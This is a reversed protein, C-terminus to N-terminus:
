RQVATLLISLLFWKLSCLSIKTSLKLFYLRDCGLLCVHPLLMHGVPKVTHGVLFCLVAGSLLATYELAHGSTVRKGRGAIVM